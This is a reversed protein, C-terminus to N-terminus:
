NNLVPSKHGITIDLQKEIFDHLEIGNEFTGMVNLIKPLSPTLFQDTLEQATLNISHKMCYKKAQMALTFALLNAMTEFNEM